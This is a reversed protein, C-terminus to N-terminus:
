NFNQKYKQANELMEKAHQKATESDVSGGILRTIEDIKQAFNLQKITTQTKNQSEIKEILLNNDAMCSIQPLHSIAIVQTQKSIKVFKEGVIKAVNGSIGADIEDFIFTLIDNYKATQAKIALMFRSMEGGSIVSSLPKLPEGLNASFMFELNDIGNASDFVCDSFDPLPKFEVTFRAKSMGLECLEELVNSSFKEAYKKRTQSLKLYNDFLSKKIKDNLLLLEQARENYNELNEKDQKANTLFAQIDEYTQGYKKKLNKIEDLRKEIQDANYESYDFDDLLDSATQSIDDIEAFANHLREFLQSYENGLDGISSFVKISNSLVDNIGGEDAISSRVCNLASTIKEQNILKNKIEALEVDENVKFDCQEIENIQYNLIDLRVLRQSEDGGLENLQSSIQRYEAYQTKIQEKIPYIEQSGFKDILALQNASKLLYYHESQGHVDVLYSTLKRLMGVSVTQGNIKVTSKGDVNLKRTIIVTQEFEIDLENFIDIFRQTQPIFFEAKVFCEVEGSRIITKDAKSGLVFNLSELVVSKGAGTEGSLVNLGSLFDIEVSDILAINKISLSKLM